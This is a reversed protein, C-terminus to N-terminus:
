MTLWYPEINELDLAVMLAFPHRFCAFLISNIGWM